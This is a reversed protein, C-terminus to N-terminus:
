FVNTKITTIIEEITDTNNSNILTNDELLWHQNFEKLINYINKIKISKGKIEYFNREQNNIKIECKKENFVIIVSIGIYKFILNYYDNIDDIPLILVNKEVILNQKIIKGMKLLEIKKNIIYNRLNESVITESIYDTFPNFGQESLELILQTRLGEDLGFLYFQLQESFPIGKIIESRFFHYQAFDLWYHNKMMTISRYLDYSNKIETTDDIVIYPFPIKSFRTKKNYTKNTKPDVRRM